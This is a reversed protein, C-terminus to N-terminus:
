SDNLKYKFNFMLDYVHRYFNQDEFISRCSKSPLQYRLGAKRRDSYFDTGIRHTIDSLRDCQLRQDQVSYM